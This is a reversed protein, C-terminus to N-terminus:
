YTIWYNTDDSRTTTCRDPFVKEDDKPHHTQSLCLGTDELPHLEFRERAHFGEFRQEAWGSHEDKCPWLRIPRDESHAGTVTLCLSRDSLPRITDGVNTFQQHRSDGCWKIRISDNEQCEGCDMCWFTERSTEQWYYGSDWYLRLRFPRLVTPSLTPSETTPSLTPSETPAPTPIDVVGYQFAGNWIRPSFTQNNIPYRKGIGEYVIIDSNFTTINGETTGKALRLYPGDSTLYFAQTRTRRVLIPDFSGSPIFTPNGLGQGQITENALLTWGSTDMDYATYNGERTYLQVTIDDYKFTNFAVSNIVINDRAKINFMTGAYSVSSEFKTTLMKNAVPAFSPAATPTDTPRASPVNTPQPTIIAYHLAGNFTRPSYETGDFGLSKATGNKFLTLDTNEFDQLGNTALSYRQCPGDLCTVYFARTENALVAVSTFIAPPIPTPRDLGKGIVTGNTLLTWAQRAQEHGIYSGTKTWVEVRTEEKNVTNFDIGRITVPNKAQVDFMVGAASRESSFTTTLKELAGPTEKEQPAMSSAAHVLPHDSPQSASLSANEMMDSADVVSLRHGRRDGRSLHVACAMAVARKPPFIRTQRHRIM